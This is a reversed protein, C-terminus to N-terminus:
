IIIGNFLRKASAVPFSKAVFQILMRIRMAFMWGRVIRADAFYANANCSVSLVPGTEEEEDEQQGYYM